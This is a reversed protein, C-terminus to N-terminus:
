GCRDATPRVTGRSWGPCQATVSSDSSRSATSRRATRCVCRCREAPLASPQRSGRLETPSSAFVERITDNFQRVSAFGAAFAIQTIPMSTTEILTRATQARQARALALPGAGLEATLLRNIQRESYSLRTALGGVGERDVLGDAILRMARGVVDARVNWEPSGPSADPRCRKCARYGHQQAAAATVFFEVNHRKPTMAPCSPRCYIGTTKVATFFCGDFRSDRSQAARYCQEDDLIVMGNHGRRRASQSASILCGRIHRSRPVAVKWLVVLGIFCFGAGGLFATRKTTLDALAGFILAGTATGIEFFMTFTSIARVQEREPIASVTMAMLSPYNFSIGIGVIVTSIFVGIPHPWLFLMALGVGMLTMAISVARAHGIRDPVTAAVVRILLCVGAYTAFVWKSGDLGVTVSYDPMFASFTVFGGVGLALVLGTPIAARNFRPGREGDDDPPAAGREADADGAGVAM